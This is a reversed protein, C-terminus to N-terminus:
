GQFLMDTDAVEDWNMIKKIIGCRMQSCITLEIGVILFPDNSFIKTWYEFLKMDYKQEYKSKM